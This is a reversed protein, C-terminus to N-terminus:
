RGVALFREAYLAVDRAVSWGLAVALALIAMAKGPLGRAWAWALAAVSLVAVPAWLLEIEKADRLATRLVFRLLLIIGASLLASGQVRRAYTSRRWVAALGALALVPFVVDYFIALRRLASLWSAEGAAAATAGTDEFVYPLVGAWLTPLFGVYMTLLLIATAIGWGGLLRLARRWEDTLLEVASLVLVLTSVMLLSGTYTAEALFMFLTAAAADRAGDLHSLRRALHVLLLVLWAQGFLTPYLALSLRSTLVPLLAALTQAVV